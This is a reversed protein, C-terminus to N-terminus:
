KVTDETKVSNAIHLDTRPSTRTLKSQGKKWHIEILCLPKMLLLLRLHKKLFSNNFMECAACSFVQTPTEAVNNSWYLHKGTFNAFNKLVFIKSFM